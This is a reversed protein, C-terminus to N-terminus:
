SMAGADGTKYSESVVSSDYGDKYKAEHPLGAPVGPAGRNSDNRSLHSVLADVTPVLRLEEYM